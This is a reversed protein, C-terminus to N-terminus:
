YCVQHKILLGKVQMHWLLPKLWVCGVFSRPYYQESNFEILTTANAFLESFCRDEPIDWLFVKESADRSLAWLKAMTVRILFFRQVM